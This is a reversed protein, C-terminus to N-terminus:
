VQRVQGVPGVPQVKAPIPTTHHFIKIPHLRTPSLQIRRNQNTETSNQHFFTEFINPPPPFLAYRQVRKRSALSSGLVYPLGTVAGSSAAVCSVRPPVGVSVSVRFRFRHLFPRLFKPIDFIQMVKAFNKRRHSFRLSGLAASLLMSSIGSFM